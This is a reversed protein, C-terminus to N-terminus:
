GQMTFNIPIQWPGGSISTQMKHETSLSLYADNNDGSFNGAFKTTFSRKSVIIVIAKNQNEFQDLM